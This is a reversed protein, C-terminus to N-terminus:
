SAKKGRMSRQWPPARLCSGSFGVPSAVSALAAAPMVLVLLLMVLATPVLTPAAVGCTAYVAEFPATSASVRSSATTCARSFMRTLASQGPGSLVSSSM